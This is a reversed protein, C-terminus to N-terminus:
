YITKCFREIFSLWLDINRTTHASTVVPTLGTPTRGHQQTYIKMQGVKSTPDDDTLEVLNIAVNDPGDFLRLQHVKGKQCKMILQSPGFKIVRTKM